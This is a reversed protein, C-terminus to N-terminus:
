SSIQNPQILWYSHNKLIVPAMVFEVRQVLLFFGGVLVSQHLHCPAM